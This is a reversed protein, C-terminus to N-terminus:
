EYHYRCQAVEIAGEATVRYVLRHIGGIRRSAYGALSHKLALPKGSGSLSLPAQAIEELLADIRLAIKPDYQQWHLYDERAARSFVPKM